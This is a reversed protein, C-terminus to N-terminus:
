REAELLKTLAERLTNGVRTTNGGEVIFDNTHKVYLMRIGTRRVFRDLREVLDDSPAPPQTTADDLDKVAARMETCARLYDPHHASHTDSLYACVRGKEIVTRELEAINPPTYDRVARAALIFREFLGTGLAGSPYPEAYALAATVLEEKLQALTTM